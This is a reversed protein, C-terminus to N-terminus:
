RFMAKMSGWSGENTPSPNSAVDYFTLMDPDSQQVVVLIHGFRTDAMTCGAQRGYEPLLSYTNLLFGSTTVQHLWGPESALSITMWLCDNACDFALGYTGQWPGGLDEVFAVSGFNGDWTLKKLNQDYGGTYYYTGDFAMARNPDLPGIFFGSLVTWHEFCNIDPSFSGVIYTGDFALDRHGWGTAGGGQPVEDIMNGYEDFIYFMCEGLYDGASVWFYEGDFGVGVCQINMDLPIEFLIPFDGEVPTIEPPRSNSYDADNAYAGTCVCVLLAVIGLFRTM